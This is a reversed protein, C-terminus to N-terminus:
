ARMDFSYRHVLGIPVDDKKLFDEVFNLKRGENVVSIKCSYGKRKLREALEESHSTVLKYSEDSDFYFKTDVNRDKMKVSVDTSGLHDMDLHLFASLEGDESMQRKNTFVYLEGAANKGNMQLPIQVYQYMQNVQNMFDVNSRIQNAAQLLSDANQGSQQVASEIRNIQDKLHTYLKSVKDSEGALDQPKLTWQQRMAEKTLEKFEPSGLLKLLNERVATQEGRTANDSLAGAVQRLLEMANMDSTLLQNGPLANAEFLNSTLASLQTNNFLSGLSGEPSTNAQLGQESVVAEGSETEVATQATGNQAVEATSIEATSADITSADITSADITSANAGNATANTASVGVAGTGNADANTASAPIAGANAGIANANAADANIADANVVNGNEGALTQGVEGSGLGSEETLTMLVDGSLKYLESATLNENALAAPLEDMFQNLENTIAQRDNAYNEFQSIMEPTTPLKLNQMEVLTEVNATPNNALLRSMQAISDRNIPLAKEMMANVMTLNDETIPLNAASLASILTLNVQNGNITFPRIAITAGDNSKVQFYLSQGPALSVSGDLRATLTQGNSLGLVAQGNHISNVTGEFVNGAKMDMVHSVLQQTGVKSAAIPASASSNAYQGIVNSFQM